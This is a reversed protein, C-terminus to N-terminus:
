INGCYGLDNIKGEVIQTGPAIFSDVGFAINKALTLLQDINGGGGPLIIFIGWDGGCAAMEQNLYDGSGPRNFNIEAGGDSLEHLLIVKL